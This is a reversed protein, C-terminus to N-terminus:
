QNTNTSFFFNFSLFIRNVMSEQILLHQYKTQLSQFKHQFGIATREFEDEEDSPVTEDEQYM